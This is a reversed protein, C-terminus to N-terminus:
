GCVHGDHGSDCKEFYDLGLYADPPLRELVHRYWDLTWGTRDTTLKKMSMMAIAWTRAKWEDSFLASDDEAVNPIPRFGQRGGLDHVTDMVGGGAKKAVPGEDDRDNCQADRPRRPGRRDLRGDGRSAGPGGHVAPRFTSDWVKVEVKDPLDTGFEALVGRPDRVARARYETSKYWSPSMGLIGVPYCSCLTCVVVNHIDPTNFVAVLPYDKDVSPVIESFAEAAHKALREAFQPNTWARAIVKAGNMPGVNESYDDLWKDVADAALFGKEVLVTELAKLRLAPEPPLHSHLERHLKAVKDSNILESISERLIMRAECRAPHVRLPQTALEGSVMLSWVIPATCDSNNSEQHGVLKSSSASTTCNETSAAVPGFAWIGPCRALRSVQERWNSVGIYRGKINHLGISTRKLAEPFSVICGALSRCALVSLSSRTGPSPSPSSSSRTSPGVKDRNCRLGGLSGAALAERGSMRSVADSLIPGHGSTTFSSLGHGAVSEVM